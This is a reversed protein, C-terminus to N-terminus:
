LHRLQPAVLPHEYLPWDLEELGWFFSSNPASSDRRSLADLDFPFANGRFGDGKRRKAKAQIRGSFISRVRLDLAVGGLRSIGHTM